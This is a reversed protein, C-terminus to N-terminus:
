SRRHRGAWPADFLEGAILFGPVFIAAFVAASRLSGGLDGEEVGPGFNYRLAAGVITLTLFM